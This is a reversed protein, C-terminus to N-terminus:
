KLTHMSFKYPNTVPIGNVVQMSPTFQGHTSKAPESSDSSGQSGFSISAGVNSVTDDKYSTGSNAESYDRYSSSSTASSYPNHDGYILGRNPLYPLANIEHYTQSNLHIKPKYPKQYANVADSNPSHSLSQGVDLTAIDLASPRKKYKATLDISYPTYSELVFPKVTSHSGKSSKTPKFFESHTGHSVIKTTTSTTPLTSPLRYYTKIEAHASPAASISNGGFKTGFNIESMYKMVAKEIYEFLEQKTPYGSIKQFADNMNKQNEYNINQSTGYTSDYNSSFQHTYDSNSSDLDKFVSPNYTTTTTTKVVEPSQYYEHYETSSKALDSGADEVSIKLPVDIQNSQPSVPVRKKKEQEYVDYKVFSSSPTTHEYKQKLELAKNVYEEATKANALSQSAILEVEAPKNPHRPVINIVLNAHDIHGKFLICNQKRRWNFLNYFTTKQKNKIVQKHIEQM